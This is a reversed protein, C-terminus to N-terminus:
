EVYAELIGIKNKLNLKKALEPFMTGNSLGITLDDLSNIGPYPLLTYVLDHDHGHVGNIFSPLEYLVYDALRDLEEPAMKALREARDPRGSKVIDVIFDHFVISNAFEEKIVNLNYEYEKNLFIETWRIVDIKQKDEDPLISLIEHIEKEKEDGIRVAKKLARDPSRKDLVELNVAHLMDPLVVLVKEKTNQLAWKIYQEINEKTFYSNGLSVGIWINHKKGSVEEDTVNLYTKIRM